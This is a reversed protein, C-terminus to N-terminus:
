FTESSKAGAQPARAGRPQAALRRGLLLWTRLRGKGKVEVEGREELAFPAV